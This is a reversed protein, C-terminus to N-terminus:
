LGGERPWFAAAVAKLVRLHANWVPRTTRDLLKLGLDPLFELAGTAPDRYVDGVGHVTLMARGTVTEAVTLAYRIGDLTASPRPGDRDLITATV